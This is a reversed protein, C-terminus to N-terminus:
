NHKKLFHDQVVIQLVDAFMPFLLVSFILREAPSELGLTVFVGECFAYLEHQVFFLLTSIFLRAITILGLWIGIQLLCTRVRAQSLEPSEPKSEENSDLAGECDANSTTSTQLTVPEDYAGIDIDYRKLLIPRCYNSIPWLLFTLFLCDVSISMFYWVCQDQQKSDMSLLEAFVISQAINYMKGYAAGAVQKAIDFVWTLFPRRVPEMLWVAIFAVACVITIAVQVAIGLPGLLNCGPGVALTITGLGFVNWPEVIVVKAESHNPLIPFGLLLPLQHQLNPLM